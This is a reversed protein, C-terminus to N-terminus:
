KDNKDKTGKTEKTEKKQNKKEIVEHQILEFIDDKTDTEIAHFILRHFADSTEVEILDDAETVLIAVTQNIKTAEKFKELKPQSEIPFLLFSTRMYGVDFRAVIANKVVLLVRFNMTGPGYIDFSKPNSWEFEIDEAIASRTRVNLNCDLLKKFGPVFRRIPNKITSLSFRSCVNHIRNNVGLPECVELSVTSGFSIVNAISLNANFQKVSGSSNKPAFSIDKKCHENFSFM